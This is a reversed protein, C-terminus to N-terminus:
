FKFDGFGITPLKTADGEEFTSTAIVDGTALIVLNMEPALYCKM